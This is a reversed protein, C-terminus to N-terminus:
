WFMNKSKTNLVSAVFDLEKKVKNNFIWMNPFQIRNM